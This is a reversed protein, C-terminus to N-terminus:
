FESMNKSFTPNSQWTLKLLPFLPFQINPNKKKDKEKEKQQFAKNIQKQRVIGRIFKQMDEVLTM